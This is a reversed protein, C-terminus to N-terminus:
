KIVAQLFKIICLIMGLAMVGISIYALTKNDHM